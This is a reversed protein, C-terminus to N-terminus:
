ERTAGVLVGNISAYFAESKDREELAAWWDDAADAPLTGADVTGALNGRLSLIVDASALDRM